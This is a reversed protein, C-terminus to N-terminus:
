YMYFVYFTLGPHSDIEAVKSITDLSEFMSKGPEDRGTMARKLPPLDSSDRAKAPHSDGGVVLAPLARLLNHRDGGKSRESPFEGNNLSENKNRSWWRWSPRSM